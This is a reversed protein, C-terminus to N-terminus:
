EMDEIYYEGLVVRGDFDNIEPLVQLSTQYIDLCWNFVNNSPITCNGKKTLFRYSFLIVDIAMPANVPNDDNFVSYTCHIGNEADFSIM